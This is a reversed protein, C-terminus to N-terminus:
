WIAKRLFSLGWAEVQHRLWNFTVITNVVVVDFSDPDVPTSHNLPQWQM